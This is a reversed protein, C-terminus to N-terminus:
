STPFSSPSSTVLDVDCVMEFVIRPFEVDENRRFPVVCFRRQGALPPAPHRVNLDELPRGCALAQSHNQMFPRRTPCQEVMLRLVTSHQHMSIVETCHTVLVRHVTKVNHHSLSVLQLNSSPQADNVPDVSNQSRPHGGVRLFRRSRAKSHRNLFGFSLPCALSDHLFPIKHM